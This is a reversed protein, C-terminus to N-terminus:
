CINYYNIRRNIMKEVKESKNDVKLTKNDKKNM